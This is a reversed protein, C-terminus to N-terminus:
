LYRSIRSAAYLFVKESGFRPKSSMVFSSIAASAFGFSAPAFAFM